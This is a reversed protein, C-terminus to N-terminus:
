SGEASGTTPLPVLAPAAERLRVAAGLRPLLLALAGGGLAYLTTVGHALVAAALGAGAPYGLATYAAVAAAEYTGVGGPAVGAIQAAISAATVVVAERGDLPIGAWQACQWVVVAEMVWAGLTGLLTLLDPPRVLGDRCEQLRRLWYVGAAYALGLGAPALWVAWGLRDGLVAPAAIWGLGLLAAMDLVRLVLTSAAAAGASIGTRRAAVLPRVAEGMRLPLLHNAALGLHVAALSDGVPLSRLVRTWLLARLVFAGGFAALVLALHVPSRLATDVAQGLAATDVRAGIVIVALLLAGGGVLWAGRKAM